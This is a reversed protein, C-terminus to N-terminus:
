AHANLGNVIEQAGQLRADHRREFRGVASGEAGIRPLTGLAAASHAPYEFLSGYELARADVKGPHAAAGEGGRRARRARLERSPRVLRHPKRQHQVRAIRIARRDMHVHAKEARAVRPPEAAAHIERRIVAERLIRAVEVDGAAIRERTEAALVIRAVLAPAVLIEVQAVAALRAADAADEEVIERLAVEIERAREGARAALM